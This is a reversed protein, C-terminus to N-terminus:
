NSKPSLRKAADVAQLEEASLTHKSKGNVIPKAYTASSDRSYIGNIVVGDDTEDLFAIAFSLDSGVDEFANYRVVGVKQLCKMLKRDIENCHNEMEVNKRSIEEARMMFKEIAEEMNINEFSKMFRMYRKSLGHIRITNYLSNLAIMLTIVLIAILYIENISLNQILEMKEEEKKLKNKVLKFVCLINKIRIGM